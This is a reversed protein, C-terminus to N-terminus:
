FANSMMLQYKAQKHKTRQVMKYQFSEDMELTQEPLAPTSPTPKGEEEAERWHVTQTRKLNGKKVPLTERDELHKANQIKLKPVPIAEPQEERGRETCYKAHSYKLTKASMKRGCSQCEVQQLFKPTTPMDLMPKKTPKPETPIVTPEEDDSSYESEVKAEIITETIPEVQQNIEDPVQESTEETAEEIAEPKEEYISSVKIKQGYRYSWLFFM